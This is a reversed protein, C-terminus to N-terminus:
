GGKIWIIETTVKIKVFSHLLIKGECESACQVIPDGGQLSHLSSIYIMM